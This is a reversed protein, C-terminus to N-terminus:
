SQEKGCMPHGGVAAVHSPLRNMVEVIQAKTSGLDILISGERMTEVVVPITELIARVPMALVVIDAERVASALDITATDVAGVRAAERAVEERRAVGVRRACRGSLALGLSGGMLGLGVIAVTSESLPMSM